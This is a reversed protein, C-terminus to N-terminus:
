ELAHINLCTSKFHRHRTVLLNMQLLLGNWDELAISDIANSDHVSPYDHHPTSSQLSVIIQHTANQLAQQTATFGTSCTQVQPPFDSLSSSFGPNKWQKQNGEKKCPGVRGEEIVQDPM